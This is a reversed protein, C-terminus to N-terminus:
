MLSLAHPVSSPLLYYIPMNCKAKLTHQIVTCSPPYLIPYLCISTTIFTLCMPKGPTKLAAPCFVRTKWQGDRKIIQRLVVLHLTNVFVLRNISQKV